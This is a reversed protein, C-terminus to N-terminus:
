RSYRDPVDRVMGRRDALLDEVVHPLVNSTRDPLDLPDFWEVAEIEAADQVAPEGPATALFVAVRHPQPGVITYTGVRETLTAKLGVEEFTERIATEGDSEVGERSGGPLSWRRHGYNEKILLIQGLENRLVTAAGGKPMPTGTNIAWDDPLVPAQLAVPPTWTRWVDFRESGRELFPIAADRAAHVADRERKSYIGIACRENFEDDDKIAYSGDMSVVIDLCLDDTDFGIATRRYPRQINIYTPVFDSAGDRILKVSFWDDPKSVILLGANNSLMKDVLVWTGELLEQRLRSERDRRSESGRWVSGQTVKVTGGPPRFYAIADDDDRVTIASAAWRIRGNTVTRVVVRSGPEHAGSPPGIGM